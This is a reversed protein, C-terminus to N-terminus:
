STVTPREDAHKRVKNQEPPELRLFNYAFHVNKWWQSQEGPLAGFNQMHRAPWRPKEQPRLHPAHVGADREGVSNIDLCAARSTQPMLRRIHEAQTYDGRDVVALEAEDEWFHCRSQLEFECHIGIHQWLCIGDRSSYNGALHEAQDHTRVKKYSQQKVVRSIWSVGGM